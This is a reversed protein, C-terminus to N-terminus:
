MLTLLTCLPPRLSVPADSSETPADLPLRDGRSGGEGRKGGSPWPPSILRVLSTKRLTMLSCWFLFFCSFRFPVAGRSRAM